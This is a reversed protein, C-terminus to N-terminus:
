EGANWHQRELPVGLEADMRESLKKREPESFNGTIEIEYPVWSEDRWKLKVRCDMNDLGLNRAEDLIYARCREQIYSRLLEKEKAELDGSLKSSNIHYQSMALALEDRDMRLLPRLIIGLLMLSCVFRTLKKVNGKPTLKEAASAIISAGTLSLIWSRFVLM